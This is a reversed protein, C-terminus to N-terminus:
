KSGIINHNEDYIVKYTNADKEDENIIDWEEKTYLKGTKGIVMDKLVIIGVVDEPLLNLALQNPNPDHVINLNTDVVVVAHTINEFTQSPVSAYLYGNYGGDFKAINILEDLGYKSKYIYCPSFGKKYLWGILTKDFEKNKNEIFNPVGDLQLEFLSAIVAQECNGHNINVITQYIKEM